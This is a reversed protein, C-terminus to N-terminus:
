KMLLMRKTQRFDGSRLECFYVGSTLNRGDFTVEYTGPQLEENVLITIEKGNIDYVALKTVTNQKRNETQSISFKIKTDPNFPNPYNQSLSYNEPNVESLNEIGITPTISYKYISYGSAYGLTDNIFIIRSLNRGWYEEQYTWGGNTTGYIPANPLKSGGIWGTNQNLFGITQSAYQGNLFQVEEWSLGGNLTKLFYSPATLGELVATGSVGGPQFSFQWVNTGIISSTIRTTWNNGGDYTQLVVGKSSNLYLGNNYGGALGTGANIFYIDSVGMLFSNLSVVTWSSGGNTTKAFQPYGIFSGCAYIIGPSIINVSGLGTAPSLPINIIATWNVGGNTTKYLPASASSSGCYGTLADQFKLCRFFHKSTDNHIINWHAGQNTTKLVMGGSTITWGTNSNLFFVDQFYDYQNSLPPFGKLYRWEPTQANTLFSYCFIFCFLLVNKM